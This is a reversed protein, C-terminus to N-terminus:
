DHSLWDYYHLTSDYNFKYVLEKVTDWAVDIVEDEWGICGVPTVPISFAWKPGSRHDISYFFPALDGNNEWFGEKKM